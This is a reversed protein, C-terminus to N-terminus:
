SRQKEFEAIRDEHKLIYELDDVGDLLCTRAFPDVDFGFALGYRGLLPLNGGTGCGCDLIRAHSVGRTAQVLFPEVFRRFGRYWFHGREAEYTARLLEDM